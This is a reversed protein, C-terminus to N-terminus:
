GGLERIWGKVTDVDTGGVKVYDKYNKVAEKLYSDKNAADATALVQHFLIGLGLAFEPNKPALERAKQLNGRADELDKMQKSSMYKKQYANGIAFYAEPYDPFIELARRFDQQATGPGTRLLKIEGRAILADAMLRRGEPTQDAKAKELLTLVRSFFGDAGDFDKQDTLIRGMELNADRDEPLLQLVQQILKAAEANNGLRRQM